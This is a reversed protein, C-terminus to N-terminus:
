KEPNINAAAFCKKTKRHKFNNTISCFLHVLQNTKRQCSCQKNNDSHENDYAKSNTRTKIEEKKSWKLTM